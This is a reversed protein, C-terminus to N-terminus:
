LVEFHKGFRTGVRQSDIDNEVEHGMLGGAMVMGDSFWVVSATGGICSSSARSRRVAPRALISASSDFSITPWFSTMSCSRIDSNAPPWQRIVPAGPNALVRRTFDM